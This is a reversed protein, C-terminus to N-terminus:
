EIPKQYITYTKSPVAGMMEALRVTMVNDELVWGMDCYDYGKHHSYVKQKWLMVGDLGLHRFKKKVGLYGLRFGKVRGKGLIM